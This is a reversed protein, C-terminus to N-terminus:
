AYHDTIERVLDHLDPTAEARIKEIELRAKATTMWPADSTASLRSLKWADMAARRDGPLGEPWESHILREAFERYRSDEFGQALSYREAWPLSHFREMRARDASSPFGGYMQEEIHPSAEKDEYQGALAEAIVKAFGPHRRILALRERATNIDVGVDVDPRYPHVIPLNNAKLIRVPRPSSKLLARAGEVDIDLYPSPDFALDFMACVAPNDPSTCILGALITPKGFARDTFLATEIKSIFSTALAKSRCAYLSDWVEPAQEKLYKVLAITARTDAQADHANDLTLGNAGILSGLKFSPRGKENAPVRIADPRYAAVAHALLMADMRCNGNTNTLYVPHLHQYFAQRLMNEDYGVSNFGILVAPSWKQIFARITRVMEYCSLSAAQITKPGVRTILMAGPSPLVHPQLRCRLNMEDVVNFDDDTVIAAFQLIQDFAPKLGTTETDYFIYTM